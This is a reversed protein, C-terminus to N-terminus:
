GIRGASDEMQGPDMMTGLGGVDWYKLGSLANSGIEYYHPVLYKSMPIQRTNFWDTAEAYNDAM